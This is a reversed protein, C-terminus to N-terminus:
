VNNISGGAQLSAEYPRWAKKNLMTIPWINILTNKKQKKEHKPLRM